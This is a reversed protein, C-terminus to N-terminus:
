KTLDKIMQKIDKLVFEKDFFYGASGGFLEAHISKIEYKPPTSSLKNVFPKETVYLHLDASIIPETVINLLTIHNNLAQQIHKWLYALNYYQYSSASDTFNLASFGVDLFIKKLVAKENNNLEKCKYFGNDQLTYYHSIEQHQNCLQTYKEQNLMSPVIHILDYIFNKKLNIGYLAPLRVILSDPYRDRVWEELYYRHLGYPHLNDTEIITNEDVHLPNKYVDVTSILVLQKPNIKVINDFAERLLELDKEPNKNALFKEARVGSYILLEPQKRYAEQINKSNYLGEFNHAKALNSGVFGSYGVLM